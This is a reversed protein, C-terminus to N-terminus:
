FYGGLKHNDFVRRECRLSAPGLFSHSATRAVEVLDTTLPLRESGLKTLLWKAAMAVSYKYLGGFVHELVISNQLIYVLIKVWKM